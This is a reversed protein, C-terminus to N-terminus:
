LQQTFQLLQVGACDVDFVIDGHRRSAPGHGLDNGIVPRDTVEEVALVLGSKTCHDAYSEIAAHRSPVILSINDPRESDHM